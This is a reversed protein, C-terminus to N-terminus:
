RPWLFKGVDSKYTGKVNKTQLMAMASSEEATFASRLLLDAVNAHDYYSAYMLASWGGGNTKKVLEPDSECNLMEHILDLDGVSSATWLDFPIIESASM